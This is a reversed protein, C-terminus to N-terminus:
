ERGWDADTENTVMLNFWKWHIDKWLEPHSIDSGTPEIPAKTEASDLLGYVHEPHNGAWEIARETDARNM